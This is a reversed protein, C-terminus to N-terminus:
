KVSVGWLCTWKLYLGTRCGWMGNWLLLSVPMSAMRVVGNGDVKMRGADNREM